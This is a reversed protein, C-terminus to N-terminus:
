LAKELIDIERSINSRAQTEYNSKFYVTKYINNELFSKLIAIRGDRYISEELSCYEKRINSMYIKYQPWKEGLISLDIDLFLSSDANDITNHNATSEILKACEEVTEFATSALHKKLLLASQLENNNATTDYVADHYFISFLFADYDAIKERCQLALDIMARIHSLNHYFRNKQTYLDALQNWCDANHNDNSSYKQITSLFIEKLM